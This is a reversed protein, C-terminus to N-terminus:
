PQASEREAGELPHVLSKLLRYKGFKVNNEYFIPIYFARHLWHSEAADLIDTEFVIQWHEGTLHYLPEEPTEKGYDVDILYHCKKHANTPNAFYRSPEERNDDNFDPPIDSLGHPWASFKGPLQGKFESQVFQMTMNEPLFFSNPFQHWAKGTCAVTGDEIWVYNKEVHQYLARYTDMPASYGLTLACLRSLGFVGSIIIGMYGLAAFPLGLKKQFLAAYIKQISGIAVAIALVLAPYMPFLFREEKHPQLFFVAMWCYLPSLYWLALDYVPQYHKIKLSILYESALCIPISFLGLIWIPGFNVTLNKLYFSVPEVGYLDPGKASFVNYTLINFWAFKPTGYFYLDFAGQVLNIIVFSEIAYFVFTTFKRRRVLIDVALPIGLAVSFPWSFLASLAVVYVAWNYKSRLWFGMWVCSL